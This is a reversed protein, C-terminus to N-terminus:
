SSTLVYGSVRPFRIRCLRWSPALGTDLHTNDTGSELALSPHVSLSLQRDHDLETRGEQNRRFRKGHMVQENEVPNWGNGERSHLPLRSVRKRILPPWRVPSPCLLHPFCTAISMAIDYFFRSCIVWGGPLLAVRCAFTESEPSFYTGLNWVQGGQHGHFAVGRPILTVRPVVARPFAPM